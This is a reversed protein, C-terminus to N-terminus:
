GVIIYLTDPDPTGLADYEAQTLQMYALGDEGDAGAPGQPGEPGADGTDGKEGQIGQAGDAGAPGQPGEPGTDGTAGQPGEPGQVPGINIWVTGTWVYVNRDEGVVVYADNQAAGSPLDTIADVEGVFNISTGTPGEPGAPGEPGEPGTEGKPGQEGTDGKAGTEGAPGEPGQEGTEGTDGKPGQEGPEGQPGAPGEPGQVSGVNVWAEGTWVYVNRDEGTVVYADNAEADSPLDLATDVEGKLSIGTGAPGQPGEPGAPGPPGAPGRQDTWEVLIAAGDIVVDIVPVTGTTMTITILGDANPDLTVTM